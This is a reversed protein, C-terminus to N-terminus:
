QSAEGGRRGAFIVWVVLDDEFDLFRHDAGAPVFLLDGPGFDSTEGDCEFRGRGDVVVYAEDQDHPKQLDEGIPTYCGMEWSGHTLVVHYPDDPNARATEAAGAVPYRHM